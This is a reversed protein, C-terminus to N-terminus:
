LWAWLTKFPQAMMSPILECTIYCNLCKKQKIKDRVEQTGESALVKSLDYGSERLNGLKQNYTVCPFVNGQADVYVRIVGGLCPVVQHGPEFYSDVFDYFLVRGCQLLSKNKMLIKKIRPVYEKFKKIYDRSWNANLNQYLNGTWEFCIVSELNFEKNLKQLEDLCDGFNIYNFPSYGLTIGVHLNSYENKLSALLSLTEIAHAYASPVGRIFNHIKKPGDVSVLMTLPLNLGLIREVKAKVIVPFSGNTTIYLKKLKPQTVKVISCIEDIDSRLFPEGGTLGVVSFKKYISFIRNIESLSLENTKKTKWQNCMRCRFNCNNTVAFEINFPDGSFRSKVADLVLSM